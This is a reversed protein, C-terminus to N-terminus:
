PREAALEATTTPAKDPLGGHRRLEKLRARLQGPSRGQLNLPPDLSDLVAAEVAGLQGPDTVPATIVRLHACMWASLQSEDEGTIDLVPGLIAALTKRFTSFEAAGALHM